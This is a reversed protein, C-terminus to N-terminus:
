LLLTGNRRSKKKERQVSAALKLIYSIRNWSSTWSVTLVTVFIYQECTEISRWIRRTHSNGWVANDRVSKACVVPCLWAATAVYGATFCEVKDTSCCCSSCSVFGIWCVIRWGTPDPSGLSSSKASSSGSPDLTALISWVAWSSNISHSSKSDSAATNASQRRRRRRRRRLFHLCRQRCCPLYPDDLNQPYRVNRIKRPTSSVM